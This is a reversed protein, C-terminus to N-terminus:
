QRFYSSGSGSGNTLPPDPDPDPDLGFHCQDAVSHFLYYRCLVKCFFFKDTIKGCMTPSFFSHRELSSNSYCIAPTACAYLSSHTVQYNSM